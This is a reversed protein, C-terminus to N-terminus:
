PPTQLRALREAPWGSSELFATAAAPDRATWQRFIHDIADERMSPDSVTAAWELAREEAGRKAAVQRAYTVRAADSQPGAPQTNLWDGAGFPDKQSWVNIIKVMTDRGPEHSIWWAAAAAPDNQMWTLGLTDMLRTREWAPESTEVWAAAAEPEHRAWTEVVARRTQTRLDEDKLGEALTLIRERDQPTQVIELIGRLAQARENTSRVHDLHRFAKPLDRSAISKYMVALLSERVPPPAMGGFDKRNWNIVAEPDRAAWASLVGESTALRYQDPLEESAFRLAEWPQSEAWQSLVYKYLLGRASEDPVGAVLTLAERAQESTIQALLSLARTTASINQAGGRLEADAATNIDTLTQPAPQAV